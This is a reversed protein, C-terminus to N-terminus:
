PSLCLLTRLVWNVIGQPVGSLVSILQSFSHGDLVSLVTPYPVYTLLGFLCIIGTFWVRSYAKLKILLKSHSVSDFAKKSTLIYLMLADIRSISWDHLCAFPDKRQASLKDACHLQLLM